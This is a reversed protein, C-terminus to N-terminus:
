RLRQTLERPISVNLCAREITTTEANEVDRMMEQIIAQAIDRDAEATARGAEASARAASEALAMAELDRIRRDLSTQLANRAVAEAEAVAQLKEANCTAQAEALDDRLGLWLGFIVAALPWGAWPLLKVILPNM